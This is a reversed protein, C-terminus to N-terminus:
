LIGSGIVGGDSGRVELSIVSTNEPLKDASIIYVSCSASLKLGDREVAGIVVGDSNKFLLAAKLETAGGDAIRFICGFPKGTVAETRAAHVTYLDGASIDRVVGWLTAGICSIHAGREGTVSLRLASVGELSVDAMLEKGDGDFWREYILMEPYEKDSGRMLAYIRFVTDSSGYIAATLRSYNGNLRYVAEAGGSINICGGAASGTRVIEYSKNEDKDASVSVPDAESLYLSNQEYGSFVTGFAKFSYLRAYENEGLAAFELRVAGTFVGGMDVEPAAGDFETVFIWEGDSAPQEYYVNCRAGGTNLAIKQLYYMNELSIWWNQGAGPKEAQWCTESNNDIAMLPKHEENFYSDARSQRNYALDAKGYAEPEGTVPGADCGEPEMFGAPETGEDIGLVNRTTVSLEDFVIDTDPVYARILTVGSYYSRFEISAKGDWLTRNKKAVYRKGTPFVGSGSVVEFVLEDPTDNVWNGNNDTFAAILQIDTKGDNGVICHNKGDQSCLIADASGILKIREAKGQRSGCPQEIGCRDERYLFYRATPLRYYDMLGMIRLGRGLISGHHYMCWIALGASSSQTKTGDALTTLKSPLIYETSKTKGEASRDCAIEDYEFYCVGPRDNQRSSYESVMHPLYYNTYAETGGDGNGGALDCVALVNLDKRQTGGLAAKRTYDLSHAYDRLSAVFRKIKDTVADDSFFPENGMSWVLVSPHNRNVRIMARVIDYCSQEFEVLKDPAANKPYASRIWDSPKMDVTDDDNFGGTSWLGGEAWLGVGLRDCADAFSPDRPYHSGRIFNFGIEKVYRVDRYFGSDTVADAWGGHDQHVNAGDLLTRVGNLYFGDLKFQVSRFGFKESVEDIVTGDELCLSTIATYLVPDKFDWFAIDKIMNSRATVIRKEGPLMTTKASAFVAAINELSDKIVNNVYLSVEKDSSNTIETRIEVDSTKQALNRLLEEESVYAGEVSPDDLTNIIGTGKREFDSKYLGDPRNESAQFAPNCIAPTWIFNGYWDIHIKNVATLYVDRYIGGSFQHDGGRPTLYPDWLNDVKVAVLNAKGMNVCDTIDVSFGSYGGRHTPRGDAKRDEYGYVATCPIHSGNVYIEATQFVGDFDLSIRRGDWDAPIYFSKRYWGCGIYFSSDNLDYPISFSHPLAVEAWEDDIFDVKESGSVDGYTFRWNRNFNETIRQNASIEKLQNM